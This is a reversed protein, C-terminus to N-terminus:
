APAAVPRSPVLINIVLVQVPERRQNFTTCRMKVFGQGARSKSARADLVEAEVELDDGPRVPRPWKMEEAWVGIIGRAPRLESEVLLRMTLGATHWGSASLGQFFSGQAAAEDLHFPQPDFLAAYAKIDGAEVRARASRFTRGVSFDELYLVGV